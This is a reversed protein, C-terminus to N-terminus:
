ASDLPPASPPPPAPEVMSTGPTATVLPAQRAEHARRRLRVSAWVPVAARRMGARETANRLFIVSYVCGLIVILALCISVLAAFLAVLCVILLVITGVASHVCNLAGGSVASSGARTASKGVHSALALLAGGVAMPVHTWVGGPYDPAAAVIAGVIPYLPVLVAHLAHDVAPIMDALVEIVLLVSLALTIYWHGLWRTAETLPVDKADILHALSLIVMPVTARIGAGGALVTALAFRHLQVIAGGDVGGTESGLALFSAM